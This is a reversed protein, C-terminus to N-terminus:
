QKVLHNVLWEPVSTMEGEADVAGTVVVDGVIVDGPALMPSALETARANYPLGELKGEENIILDYGGEPVVVAEIYGGVLDQLFTLESGTGPVQVAEAHGESTIHIYTKAM